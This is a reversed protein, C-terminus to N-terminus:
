FADKRDIGIREGEIRLRQPPLADLAAPSNQRIPRRRDLQEIDSRARMGFLHKDGIEWVLLHDELSIQEITRRIVIRRRYVVRGYMKRIPYFGFLEIDLAHDAHM